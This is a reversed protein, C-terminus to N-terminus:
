RRLTVILFALKPIFVDSIEVWRRQASSFLTKVKMENILTKEEDDAIGHITNWLMLFLIMAWHLSLHRSQNRGPVDQIIDIIRAQKCRLPSKLSSCIKETFCSIWIQRLESRLVWLSADCPRIIETIVAKCRNQHIEAWLILFFFVKVKRVIKMSKRGMGVSAQRYGHSFAVYFSFLIFNKHENLHFVKIIVNKIVAERHPHNTLQTVSPPKSLKRLFKAFKRSPKSFDFKQQILFFTQIRVDSISSGWHHEFIQLAFEICECSEKTEWGPFCLQLIKCSCKGGEVIVDSVDGGSKHDM